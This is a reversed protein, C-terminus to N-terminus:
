EMHKDRLKLQRLLIPTNHTLVADLKNIVVRIIHRCRILEQVTRM